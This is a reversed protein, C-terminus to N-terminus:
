RCALLRGRTAFLLRIYYRAAVSQSREIRVLGFEIERLVLIIRFMGQM